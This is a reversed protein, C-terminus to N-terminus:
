VSPAVPLSGGLTDDVAQGAPTPVWTTSDQTNAVIPLAVHPSIPGVVASPSTSPEGGIRESVPATEPLRFSHAMNRCSAMRQIIAGRLLLENACVSRGYRENTRSNSPWKGIVNLERTEYNMQTAATPLLNKPSHVTYTAGDPDSRGACVPALNRRANGYAAPEAKGLEWRRNLRPFM